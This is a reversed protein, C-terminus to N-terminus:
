VFIGGHIWFLVPRLKSKVTTVTGPLYPTFINLSLCDESFPGPGGQYCTLGFKSADVIANRTSSVSSYAFRAPPNAYPIGLFRFSKLDRFGHFINGTATSTANIRNSSTAVSTNRTTGQASQTCLAPRPGGGLNSTINVRTLWLQASADALWVPQGLTLDGRLIAYQLLFRLDNEDTRAAAASVLQEGLRACAQAADAHSLQSDLFLFSPHNVDDTWDLNNQFWLALPSTPKFPTSAAVGAVVVTVFACAAFLRRMGLM